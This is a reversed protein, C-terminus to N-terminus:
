FLVENDVSQGDEEFDNEDSESLEEIQYYKIFKVLPSERIEQLHLRSENADMISM